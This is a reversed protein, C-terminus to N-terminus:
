RDIRHRIQRRKRRLPNREFVGICHIRFADFTQEGDQTRLIGCEVDCSFYIGPDRTWRKRLFKSAGAISRGQKMRSAERIEAHRCDDLLAAELNKLIRSGDPAIDM